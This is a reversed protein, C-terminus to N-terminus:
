SGDQGAAGPKLHKEPLAAPLDEWDIVPSVVKGPRDRGDRGDLVVEVGPLAVVGPEQGGALLGADGEYREERQSAAHAVEATVTHGLHRVPM